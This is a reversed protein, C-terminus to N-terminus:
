IKHSPRYEFYGGALGVVGSGGQTIVVAKCALKEQFFRCQDKWDTLGSLFEAEVANPKFVDCGYWKDLPGKKPDVIIPVHKWFWQVNGSFFGKDYDSLIIVDPKKERDLRWWEPPVGVTKEIDWRNGVQIDGDFFRKKRPIKLNDPLTMWCLDLGSEKYIDIAEQDVWCFLRTRVNFNRLQYCVNAAGGPLRADPQENESVM